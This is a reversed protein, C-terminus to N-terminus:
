PYHDPLDNEYLVADGAGLHRRVWSVAEPRDSVVVSHVPPRAGALLARRNTRGVVILDDAVAAAATAFATNEEAQRRGLEVLGPTVVVRRGTATGARELARLAARAGAPNANYTDDLVVVGGEATASELRHPVVPLSGVRRAIEEVAVGLELAVAVACALNGPRPGPALRAVDVGDVVLVLADDDERVSVSAGGLGPDDGPVDGPGIAVVRRVRRGLRESETALAALRPDGVNLVVTPAKELIEAKAAVIREETGFRELHVPGIATIVAIDPVLWSCLDAIEGPRYTGMEAVFVDTGDLLHENVARALGARNNFSAPSAVVARSGALLHAVYGKTSTKGYSGTIAVVTPAVRRLRQEARRVHRHAAAREFPATIASAGDVVLPVALALAAAGPPGAGVLVCLAVAGALLGLAVAALTRARRTWALPSTRGRLGLGRPGAAVAVATAFATAPWRGALLAGVVALVLGGGNLATAGWWRAAFRLASGPLYHERQAVRLWRLGALCAALSCGAVAAARLATV